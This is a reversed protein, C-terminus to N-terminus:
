AVGCCTAVVRACLTAEARREDHTIRLIDDGEHVADGSCTARACLTAGLAAWRAWRQRGWRRKGGIGNGVVM